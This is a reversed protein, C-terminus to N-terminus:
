NAIVYPVIAAATPTVITAPATDTLSSGSTQALNKQGAVVAAGSHVLFGFLTPVTSAAVAVAAWYVGTRPIRVPTAFALTKVTNAAWAASTQDPTQALLAATADDSYLAFWHNTGTALATTASRFTLQRVVDGAILPLAVSLLVGSSPATLNGSAMHRPFNERFTGDPSGNLMHQPNVVPYKSAGLPM